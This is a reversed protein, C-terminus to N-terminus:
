SFACSLIYICCGRSLAHPMKSLKGLVFAFERSNLGYRFIDCCHSNVHTDDVRVTTNFDFNPPSKNNPTQDSAQVNESTQTHARLEISKLPGLNPWNSACERTNKYSSSWSYIYIYYPTLKLISALQKCTRRNKQILEILFLYSYHTSIHLELIYITPGGVNENEHYLRKDLINFIKPNNKNFTFWVLLKELFAIM